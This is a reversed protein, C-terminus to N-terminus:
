HRILIEQFEQSEKQSTRGKDYKFTMEINKHGVYRSVQQIPTGKELLLTIVTARAVHPTIGELDIGSRIACSTFIYAVTSQKPPIGKDRVAFIYDEDDINIDDIFKLFTGTLGAYLTVSRESGGKQKIRISVLGSKSSINKKKINTIESHRLGTMFFLYILIAWRPNKLLLSDAYKLVSELENSTLSKTFVEKPSPIRDISDMPNYKVKRKKKLYSYFSSVASVHIRIKSPSAGLFKLENIIRLAHIDELQYEHLGPFFKNLYDFFVKLERKYSRITHQSNFKTLFSYFILKRESYHADKQNFSIPLYGKDFIVEINSM